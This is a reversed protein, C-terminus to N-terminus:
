RASGDPTTLFIYNEYDEPDAAPIYVDFKVLDDQSEIQVSMQQGERATVTYHDFAAVPTRGRLLVTNSGAAFEVREM